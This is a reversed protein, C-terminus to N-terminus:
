YQVTVNRKDDNMISIGVIAPNLKTYKEDINRLSIEGSNEIRGGFVMMGKSFTETVDIALHGTETITLQAGTQVEISIVQVEEKLVPQANHGNNKSKIVVCSFEDPVHNTSWNRPENWSTEKGPTGGIWETKIQASATITTMAFFFIM